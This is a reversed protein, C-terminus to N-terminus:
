GDGREDDTSACLVRGGCFLTACVRDGRTVASYFISRGDPPRCTAPARLQVGQASWGREGPTVVYLAGSWLMLAVEGHAGHKIDQVFDLELIPGLTLRAVTEDGETIRLYLRDREVEAFFGTGARSFSMFHLEPQLTRSVVVGNEDLRITEHFTKGNKLFTDTNLWVHGSRPDVAVSKPATLGGSPSALRYERLLRGDPSIVAVAGYSRYPDGQPASSYRTVYLDGGPGEWIENLGPGASEFRELQRTAPDYCGMADFYTTFCIRGSSHVLVDWVSSAGAGEGRLSLPPLFREEALDFRGILLDGTEDLDAGSDADREWWLTWFPSLGFYLTHGDSDAFWASYTEAGRNARRMAYRNASAARLEPAGAPVAAPAPPMCGELGATGAALAVLAVFVSRAGM